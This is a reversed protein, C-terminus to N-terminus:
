WAIEWFLDDRSLGRRPEENSQVRSCVQVSLVRDKAPEDRAFCDKLAYGLDIDSLVIM